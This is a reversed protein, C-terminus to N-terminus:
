MNGKMLGRRIKPQTFGVNEKAMSSGLGNNLSKPNKSIGSSPHSSMPSVMGLGGVPQAANRKLTKQDKGIPVGMITLVKFTLCM